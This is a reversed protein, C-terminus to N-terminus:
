AVTRAIFDTPGGAALPVVLRVIKTPYIDQARAPGTALAVGLALCLCAVISRMFNEGASLNIFTSLGVAAVAQAVGPGPASGQRMLEIVPATKNASSHFRPQDRLRRFTNRLLIRKM